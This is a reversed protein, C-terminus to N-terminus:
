FVFRGLDRNVIIQNKRGDTSYQAQVEWQMQLPTLSPTWIAFVALVEFIRSNTRVYPGLMPWLARAQPRGQPDLWAVYGPAIRGKKFDIQVIFGRSLWDNFLSATVQCPEHGASFRITYPLSRRAMFCFRSM